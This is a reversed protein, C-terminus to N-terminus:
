KKQKQKLNYKVGLQLANSYFKDQLYFEFIASIVTYDFIQYNLNGIFRTFEDAYDDYFWGGEVKMNFDNDSNGISYGLGGGIFFREDIMWYPYGTSLPITSEGLSAQTRTSEVFPQFRHKKQMWRDFIVKGTISGEYSEDVYFDENLKESKTYYNGELSLSTNFYKFFRYDQYLNLQFRYISKSYSPGNEAPAINLEASSYSNNKSYNAGAGFQFFSKELLSYEYRINSWYQLKEFAKPNNFQYQFGFVDHTKNDDYDPVEYEVRYMSSYTFGFGHLNKKKDHVNYSLVNEFASLKDKNTQMETDYNIFNGYERRNTKIVNQLVDKYFLRQYNEVLYNQLENEEYVVDTNLMKQITEKDLSEEPLESALIWSEKFKGMDHYAISMQAKVRYDDPNKAIYANYENILKQYDKLEILWQMKSYFDIETSFASWDYAKQFDNNDGYIWSIVTALDKYEESPKLKDLEPIANEPEYNVLYDIYKLYNDRSPDAKQLYLLAMKIKEQNEPSNFYTIYNNLLEVDNPTVKMQASMWKEQIVDNPYYVLKSLEQSYLINEPLPYKICHEDLMAWVEEAREDWSLYETYQNWVKPDIKPETIMRQRLAEIELALKEDSDDVWLAEKALRAVEENFKKYENRVNAAVLDLNSSQLDARFDPLTIRSKNTRVSYLYGDLYAVKKFNAGQRKLQEEIRSVKDMASYVFWDQESFESEEPKMKEVTYMGHVSKHNFYSARWDNTMLGSERADLYRINPFDTRITQLLKDFEPYMARDSNPTKYWGLGDYNRLDYQGHSIKTAPIQYIDDPHLFHTWIGTYMYLSYMTFKLDPDVYFGSSIRPLDFLEPEYPDFDFERDGGDKKHGVFLSCMFTLSPMGKKLQKLGVRDIYNSPPVYTVPLPGFDNVEWKKEAAKLSTAMFDPNKWDSVLLSVHNYGHFALEHGHKAVDNVLWTSLGTEKGDIKIKKSDWERFLFPPKINVNYDFTTMAAYKIDHKKALKRLDPWWVNHVYDTITLDMESKVPEEKIDYLPSPFDDLFIVGTNIIPYPVGELGRLIGSVLMGRDEKIFFYTSNYYIVKGKGISNETILPYKEDSLATADIKIKDSFVIKKLGFHKVNKLYSHDKFGPFINTKFLFGSAEADTMYDNEPKMGVLFSFRKDESGFPMFLTGGRAVFDMLVDISKNNLKKTDLVSLVRVSSEIKHDKNWEELTVSRFPIKMYDCVKRMNRNLSLSEVEGKDTICQVLPPLNLPMGSYRRLTLEGNRKNADLGTLEEIQACGAAIVILLM